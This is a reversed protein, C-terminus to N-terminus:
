YNDLEWNNLLLIRYNLFNSKIIRDTKLKTAKSFM